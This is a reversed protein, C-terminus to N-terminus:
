FIIDRIVHTKTEKFKFIYGSFLKIYRVLENVFSTFGDECVIDLVENLFQTIEDSSASEILIKYM